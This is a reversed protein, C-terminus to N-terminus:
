FASFLWNLGAFVLWIVGLLFAIPIAIFFPLAIVAAWYAERAERSIIEYSLLFSISALLALTAFEFFTLPM